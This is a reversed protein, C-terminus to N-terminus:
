TRNLIHRNKCRSDDRGNLLDGYTTSYMHSFRPPRQIMEVVPVITENFVGDVFGGRGDIKHHYWEPTSTDEYHPNITKIMLDCERNDEIMDLARRMRHLTDFTAMISDRRERERELKRIHLYYLLFIM